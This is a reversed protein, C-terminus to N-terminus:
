RQSRPKRESLDGANRLSEIVGDIGKRVATFAAAAGLLRAPSLATLLTQSGGGGLLGPLSPRIRNSAAAAQNLERELRNAQRVSAALARDTDRFESEMRQTTRIVDNM